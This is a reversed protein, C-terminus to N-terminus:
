EESGQHSTSRCSISGHVVQERPMRALLFDLLEDQRPQGFVIRYVALSHRLQGLREFDGSLPLTPVHREIRAGGRVAYVWYPVLDSRPDAPPFGRM